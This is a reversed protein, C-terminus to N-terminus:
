ENKCMSKTKLFLLFETTPAIKELELLRNECQQIRKFYEQGRRTPGIPLELHYELDCLRQEFTESISTTVVEPAKTQKQFHTLPGDTNVVKSTKIQLHRTIKKANVRASTRQKSEGCFELKNSENNQRKKLTVLSSIREEMEQKNAVVLLHDPSLLSLAEESTIPESADKFHESNALAVNRRRKSDREAKNEEQRRQRKKTEDNAEM